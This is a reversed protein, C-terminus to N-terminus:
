LNSSQGLELRNPSPALPIPNRQTPNRRTANPPLAWPSSSRLLFRDHGHSPIGRPSRVALHDPLTAHPSAHACRMARECPLTATAHLAHAPLAPSPRRRLRGMGGADGSDRMWSGGGAMSGGRRDNRRLCSIIGTHVTLGIDLPAFTM